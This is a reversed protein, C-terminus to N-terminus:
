NRWPCVGVLLRYEVYRKFRIRARVQVQPDVLGAVRNDVLGRGAVDAPKVARGVGVAELPVPDEACIQSIAAVLHPDLVGRSAVGIGIDRDM